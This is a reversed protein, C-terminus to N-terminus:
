PWAGIGASIAGAAGEGDFRGLNDSLV